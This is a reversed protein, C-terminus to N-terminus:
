PKYETTGGTPTATGRGLLRAVHHRLSYQQLFRRVALGNGAALFPRSSRVRLGALIGSLGSLLCGARTSRVLAIVAHGAILDAKRPGTFHGRIILPFNRLMLYYKRAPTRGPGARRHDVVCASEYLIGHGLALIRVALDLDNYYLGFAEDYGEAQRLIQTRVLFGCGILNYWDTSFEVDGDPGWESRGDPGIINAAVAGAAPTEELLGVMRELSNKRPASDDDLVLAYPTQVTDFGMNYGRLPNNDSHPLVTVEPFSERLCATTGDESANDVVVVQLAPYGIDRLSQLTTLLEGRRNHTSIVVTVAPLPPCSM